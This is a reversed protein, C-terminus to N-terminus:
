VNYDETNIATAAKNKKKKKTLTGKRESVVSPVLEDWKNEKKGENNTM